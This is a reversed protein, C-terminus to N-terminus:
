ECVYTSGFVALMIAANKKLKAFDDPIQSDFEEIKCEKYLDQWKLSAQLEMLELQFCPDVNTRLM